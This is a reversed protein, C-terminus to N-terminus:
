SVPQEVDGRRRPAAHRDILARAVDPNLAYTEQDSPFTGEEVERKFAALANIVEGRLSAFRRVFRPLLKDELGVLDHFVLVQGDCHRGAGIGITPVRV